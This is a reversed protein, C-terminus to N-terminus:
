NLSAGRGLVRLACTMEFWLRAHSRVVSPLLDLPEVRYVPADAAGQYIPLRAFAADHFEPTCHEGDVRGNHTARALM